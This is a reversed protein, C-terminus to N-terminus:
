DKKQLRYNSPQCHPTLPHCTVHIRMINAISRVSGKHDFLEDKLTITTVYDKRM